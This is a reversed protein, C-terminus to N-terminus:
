SQVGNENVYMFFFETYAGNIKNREWAINM